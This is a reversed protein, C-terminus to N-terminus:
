KENKYLDFHFFPALASYINDEFARSRTINNNTFFGVAGNKQKTNEIKLLYDMLPGLEMGMRIKEAISDPLPIRSGSARGILGNKDIIVVWGTLFMGWPLEIAAGELGIGYDANLSTLAGIARNEAGKVAEIDSLPQMSVGSEVNIGIIEYNHSIKKFANDVAKIKVPNLSGVAIKINEKIM